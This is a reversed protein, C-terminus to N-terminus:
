GPRKIRYLQFRDSDQVLTLRAPDPNAADDATFLVYLYDYKGTWGRWYDKAEADPRTAEVILQSISPPTGDETDVMGLYDPRVHMIQKGPVTFATTVLASREIMAICVAHVLGLDNVDDGSTNDAYAVLVKSGPAIRKVSTRFQKTTASLDSWLVDVEIVRLVLVTLVLAIFARRVARRPMRLDATAVMMFAIAIPLRQDAMYSAFLTRPMALYILTSIALLPWGIPHLRMLRRPVAWTVAAVILGTILFAVVDSYVEIVYLLGDLKGRPEWYNEGALQLTPSALLLPIAILFPIGSACFDVLLHPWPQERRLWLRWAEYALLGIGYLGVAFLHCFFMLVVFVSSAAYRWPWAWERLYIWAALAWMALGIGFLYNMVGVLFVHNYLLPIAILPLVSWRGFLARNFALMGSIIVLFMFVTFIQGALYINMGRGLVPVILDMMLNPVIQWDIQYYQSLKQDASGSAIVHMRAIHNVYDAMPPLPHTWIPISAVLILLLFLVGVQGSSFDMVRHPLPARAASSVYNRTLRSVHRVHRTAAKGVAKM